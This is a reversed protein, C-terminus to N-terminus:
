ACSCVPARFAAAVGAATGVAVIDRVDLDSLGRRHASSMRRSLGTAGTTAAMTSLLFAICAGVHLLSGEKGVVLRSTSAM